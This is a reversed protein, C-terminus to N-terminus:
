AVVELSEFLGGDSYRDGNIILLEPALVCGVGSRMGQNVLSKTRPHEVFTWGRYLERVMPHDYYSLVVRTKRFRRLAMMLSAHDCPAMDHVYDAGKEIYPPDCYVVVGDADEIRHILDVADDNLITVHRMRRRWAPISDVVSLVRRATHGGSKSFRRCFGANYSGTGAVGNRGWWSTIFYDHARDLDPVEPAPSRKHKRVSEAADNLLDHSCWERRLRRYFLPGIERDRIVRALNVLDGHLDNVVEMTAPQKNLLVSMSGCFPEWYAVHPGLEEIILPAMRRKGGYWPAIATIRMDSQNM